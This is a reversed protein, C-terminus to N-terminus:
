SKHTKLKLIDVDRLAGATLLLRLQSQREAALLTAFFHIVVPLDTDLVGGGVQEIQMSVMSPSM